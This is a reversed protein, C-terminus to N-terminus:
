FEFKVGLRIRYVSRFGSRFNFSDDDFDTFRYVCSSQTVCTTRPADGSLRPADDVGFTELDEVSILDARTTHNELFRPGNRWVGWEDNLMNLFNQIDLYIRFNNDGLSNGLFNFGPIKQQIRIDMTTNWSASATFPRQIGPGDGNKDFYEFFADQDLGSNDAWVVAPDGPGDPVYLADTDYPSEFGARGFLPNSSSVDFTHSVLDGSVRRAFMDFRTTANGDGFFDKEYGIHLKLAHETQFPSPKASPFNRDSGIM